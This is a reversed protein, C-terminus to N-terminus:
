QVFEFSLSISGSLTFSLTYYAHTNVAREASVCVSSILHDNAALRQSGMVATGFGHMHPDTLEVGWGGM